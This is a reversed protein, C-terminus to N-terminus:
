SSDFVKPVTTEHLKQSPMSITENGVKTLGISMGICICIVYLYIRFTSCNLSISEFWIHKLPPKVKNIAIALKLLITQM